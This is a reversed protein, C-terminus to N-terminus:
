LPFRHNACAIPASSSVLSPFSVTLMAHPAIRVYYTGFGRYFRGIGEEKIVKKVCDLASNYRKDAGKGQVFSTLKTM